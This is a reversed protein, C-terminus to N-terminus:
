NEKPPKSYSDDVCFNTFGEGNLNIFQYARIFPLRYDFACYNTGKQHHVQKSFNQTKIWNFTEKLELKNSVDVSCVPKLHDVEIVSWNMEPTLQYEIRRRYTDIDIILVHRSTSQKTIGKLSKYIRCRSNVILRFNVDIARGNKM